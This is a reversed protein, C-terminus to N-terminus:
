CELQGLFPTGILATPDAGNELLFRASELQEGQIASVLPTTTSCPEPLGPNVDAGAAILYGLAEVQGRHAAMHVVTTCSWFGSVVSEPNAGADLLLPILHPQGSHLCLAITPYRGQPGIVVFQGPVPEVTQPDAGAALLQRLADANGSTIAERMSIEPPNPTDQGSAAIILSISCLLTLWHHKM